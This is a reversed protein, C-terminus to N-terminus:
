DVPWRDSFNFHSIEQPAIVILLVVTPMIVIPVVIFAVRLRVVIPTVVALMVALFAVSLM